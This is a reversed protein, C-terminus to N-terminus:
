LVMYSEFKNWGIFSVYTGESNMLMGCANCIIRLQDM